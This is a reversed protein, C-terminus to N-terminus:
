CRCGPLGPSSTCTACRRVAGGRGQLAAGQALHRAAVLGVPREGAAGAPCHGAYGFVTGGTEGLLLQYHLDYIWTM